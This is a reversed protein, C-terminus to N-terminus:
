FPLFFIAIMLAFFALVPDEGREGGRFGHWERYEKEKEEGISMVQRKKLCLFLNGVSIGKSM